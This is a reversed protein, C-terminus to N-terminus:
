EQNPTFAGGSRDPFAKLQQGVMLPGPYVRVASRVSILRQSLLDSTRRRLCHAKGLRLQQHTWARQLVDEPGLFVFAPNLM